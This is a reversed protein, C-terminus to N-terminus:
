ALSTLPAILNDVWALAGRSAAGAKSSSSIASTSLKRFPRSHVSAMFEQWQWPALRRRRSALAVDRGPCAPRRAAHVERTSGSAAMGLAAIRPQTPRVRDGRAHFM